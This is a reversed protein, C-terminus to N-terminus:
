KRGTPKIKCVPDNWSRFHVSPCTFKSGIITIDGFTPYPFEEAWADYLAQNDVIDCERVADENSDVVQITTFQPCKENVFELFADITEKRRGKIKLTDLTPCAIAFAEVM